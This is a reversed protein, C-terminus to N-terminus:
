VRHWGLPIRDARRQRPKSGTPSGLAKPGGQSIRNQTADSGPSHGGRDQNEAGLAVPQDGASFHASRRPSVPGFWFEKGSHPVVHHEFRSPSVDGFSNAFPKFDAVKDVACFLSAAIRHPRDRFEVFVIIVLFLYWDFKPMANDDSRMGAACIM